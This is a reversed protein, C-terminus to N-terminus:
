APDVATIPDAGPTGTLAKTGFSTTDDEHTITQTTGSISWKNVLVAIAGLLSRFAVSDGDASARVSAYSRRYIHDALKNCVAAVVAAAVNLESNMRGNVLAAPLRAQIDAIETDVFNDVAAILAALDGATQLTGAVHTVDVEPVGETTPTAVATARWHTTAVRIDDAEQPYITLVTTKAGVTTTKVIVTTCDTNMETTTLDLFYIGSATAVETAENTCDAFAAGDLSRESDLGTAGTVLDGDADLIPFYVRYATNKIPVPRADTAAM